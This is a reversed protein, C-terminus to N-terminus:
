QKVEQLYILDDEIVQAETLTVPQRNFNRDETTRALAMYRRAQSPRVKPTLLLIALWQM